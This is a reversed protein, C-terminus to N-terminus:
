RNFFSILQDSRPVLTSSDVNLLIYKTTLRVDIICSDGPNDTNIVKIEGQFEKNQENPAIVEVDVTITNGQALNSGSGPDFTWSGWEPYSTVEWNLLSDPAGENSVDFSGEVIEGPKVDSWELEGECTLDADFLRNYYLFNGVDGDWNSIMMDLSPSYTYTVEVSDMPAADITIWGHERSYTYESPTLQIDDLYISLINQIPQHPLHFLRRDGDPLFEKIFQEEYLSYGVDGFVIKEVVSTVGSNWSPSSSLGTGQNFFLRTHDWWAGTALDLLNDDNVDALAVASGYGDYYSWSYTTEFFAGVIGTYQKFLGSGGLQTNDTAFLDRVGDNTVDGTTLMIGDQSSSDATQWSATTGLVGGLNRYIMTDQGSGIGALDLWSDNDADVWIVGMYHNMDDSIWSATQELMGNDNLYVYNHYFHQPTYSWGTAVALDPRGDNNMDGFDVGFANGQIDSSWDPLSSLVGNNNFYLRAIPGYSNFEGLYAVAVDLWGDGNVDAIDLHGNYALDDSQWSASTPFTGEGTNYYVNVHGELIDNGDAVVLDLWGDHNLDALGAGTSYHPNDSEWDPSSPYIPPDFVMALPERQEAQGGCLSPVFFISLFLILITGVVYKKMMLM